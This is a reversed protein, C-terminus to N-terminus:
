DNQSEFQNKKRSNHEGIWRILGITEVTLEIDASSHKKQDILLNNNIRIQNNLSDSKAILKKERSNQRNFLDTEVM